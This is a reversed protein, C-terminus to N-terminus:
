RLEEVVDPIVPVRESELMADGAVFDTWSREWRDFTRFLWLFPGAIYEELWVDLYGRELAFRYLRDRVSGPLVLEWFGYHQAIRRGMANEMNAHDRLASPARLLQLTRLCAHGLIHVLAVYQLGFGIEAVIVGVQSMSAYALASKVDSQVRSALAAFAATSLGLVVVIACLALSSYLITSMRLLLYAGLHVSLAGYFVASSPTPGEMARPLWSSFPILASKGAAALILLTGVWWVQPATLGAHGAPWAGTGMLQSFDGGGSVHHMAIAAMLFAADSIRYVTWVRLGNRVPAPREQFFAVLMASSLGVLEWGAFLTEITGALLSVIMGLLFIAYCLFFREFGPERHLYRSTFASITGCLLFTLIVLPVSLRDFVFKVHFHFHLDPINVWNGFEIPVHRSGTILMAVLIALSAALGLLNTWLALRSITAERLGAGFFAALGLVAFLLMPLISVAMGVPTLWQEVTM